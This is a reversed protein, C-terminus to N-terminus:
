TEFMYRESERGVHARHLRLTYMLHCWTTVPPSFHDLNCYIHIHVYIYIYVHTYIYIYVYMCMITYRCICIHICLPSQLEVRPNMSRQLLYKCLSRSSQSRSKWCDMAFGQLTFMFMGESFICCLYGKLADSWPTPLMRRQRITPCPQRLVLTSTRLDQCSFMISYIQIHSKLGAIRLTACPFRSFQGYLARQLVLPIWCTVTRNLPPMCYMILVSKSKRAAICYNPTCCLVTHIYIYIYICM